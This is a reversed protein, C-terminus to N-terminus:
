VEHDHDDGFMRFALGTTDDALRIKLVKFGGEAAEAKLRQVMNEWKDNPHAVYEAVQGTCVDRLFNEEEYINVIYAEVDVCQYKITWRFTRGQVTQTPGRMTTIATIVNIKKEAIPWKCHFGPKLLRQFRGYRMIAGHGWAYVTAYPKLSDWAKIILDLLKAFGSIM